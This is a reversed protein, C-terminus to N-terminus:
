SYHLHPSNFVRVAMNRRNLEVRSGRFRATKMGDRATGNRGMNAAGVVQLGFIAGM